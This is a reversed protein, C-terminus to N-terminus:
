RGGGKSSGGSKSVPVEAGLYKIFRKKVKGNEDRYSQYRYLYVHGRIRKREIHSM